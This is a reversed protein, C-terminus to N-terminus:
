AGAGFIGPAFFAALSAIVGQFGDFGKVPIFHIDDATEDDAVRVVRAFRDLGIEFKRPMVDVPGVNLMRGRVRARRHSLIKTAASQDDVVIRLVVVTRRCYYAGIM